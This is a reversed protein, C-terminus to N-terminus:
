FLIYKKGSLTICSTLYQHRFNCNIPLISLFLIKSNVFTKGRLNKMLPLKSFNMWAFSLFKVFKPRVFSQVTNCYLNWFQYIQIWIKQLIKWTRWTHLFKQQHVQGCINIKYNNFVTSRKGSIKWHFTLTGTPLYNLINSLNNFIM